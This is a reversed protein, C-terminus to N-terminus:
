DPRAAWLCLPAQAAWLAAPSKNTTPRAHTLAAAPKVVAAATTTPVAAATSTGTGAPGTAATAATAGAATAATAAAAAAAMARRRQRAPLRNEPHRQLFAIRSHETDCPQQIELPGAGGWHIGYQGAEQAIVQVYQGKDGYWWAWDM